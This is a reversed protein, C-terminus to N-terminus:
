PLGGKWWVYSELHITETASAIEDFLAKWFDQDQLIELRNGCSRGSGTLAEVTSLVDPLHEVKAPDLKTPRQCRASWLILGLAAVLVWGLALVLFLWLPM